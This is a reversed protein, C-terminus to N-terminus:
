RRLAMRDVKGVQTKPLKELVVITSPVKYKILHESCFRQLSEISAERGSKVVVFALVVEGRFDDAVGVVAAEAVDPHLYLVEEVERPYVKYGGVNIMDKKRDRIFLYGDSDIEGLDGTYLWGDRLVQNTQEPLNRYGAM